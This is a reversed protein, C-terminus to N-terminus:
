NVAMSIQVLVRIRLKASSSEEALPKEKMIYTPTM